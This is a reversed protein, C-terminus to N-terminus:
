EVAASAGQKRIELVPSVLIEQDDTAAARKEEPVLSVSSEQEFRISEPKGIRRRSRERVGGGGVVVPISAEVDIEAQVAVVRAEILIVVRNRIEVGAIARWVKKQVVFAIADELIARLSGAEIDVVVAVREGADPPM